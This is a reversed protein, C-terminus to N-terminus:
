VSVALASLVITVRDPSRPKTLDGERWSAVALLASSATRSREAHGYLAVTVHGALLLLLLSRKQSQLVGGRSPRSLKRSSWSSGSSKYAAPASPRGAAVLLLVKLWQFTSRWNAAICCGRLSTADINREMCRIAVTRRSSKGDDRHLGGLHQARTTSGAVRGVDEGLDHPQRGALSRWWALLVEPTSPRASRVIPLGFSASPASRRSQGARLHTANLTTRGCAPSLHGPVLDTPPGLPPPWRRLSLTAGLLLPSM